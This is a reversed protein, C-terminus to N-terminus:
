PKRTWRSGRPPGLSPGQSERADRRQSELEVLFSSGQGLTPLIQAYTMAEPSQGCDGAEYPREGLIDAAMAYLMTAENVSEMTFQTFYRDGWDLLNDVYKMVVSKAYASLRLRAIAHPNFPDSEYAEIAAGDTLIDRMTPWTQNRLGLYRWVRDVGTGEATPDFIYHYWRQAAAFQGQSNLHDAILFPIHFFIERYYVGYPGDFDLRGANTADKIRSLGTFPPAAEKLSRQTDLDLLGHVGGAFLKRAVATALTTGLREIRYRNTDPQRRVLIADPGAQVIANSIAGSIALLNGVDSLEAIKNKPHHVHAKLGTDHQGGYEGDFMDIREDELVLNAFANRSAYWHTPSGYYLGTKGGDVKTSLLFRMPRPTRIRHVHSVDSVKRAFHRFLGVEVVLRFNRMVLFLGSDLADPFVMEWNPGTLTYDEIPNRTHRVRKLRGQDVRLIAKAIPDPQDEIRFRFYDTVVGAMHDSDDLDKPLQIAQPATWKGDLRLSTYKLTLTHRYGIFVSSGKVVENVSQSRIETWFLVPKRYVVPSAHRVPIQVSIKRWPSYITDDHRGHAFPSEIARYYYTPPDSSTVGALHLTDAPEHYYAGAITLSGIEEFGDMFATYADLAGQQDIQKQLLASELEEFLPTKDDRLDPEIYSEPYLFVKRNAEWVRYAKRWEWEAAADKGITVHLRNDGGRRDQELDM